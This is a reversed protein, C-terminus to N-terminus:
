SLTALANGPEEDQWIEGCSAVDTVTTVCTNCPHWSFPSSQTRLHYLYQTLTSYILCVLPKSLWPLNHSSPCMCGAPLQYKIAPVYFWTYMCLLSQKSNTGLQCQPQWLHSSYSLGRYMSHIGAFLNLCPGQGIFFFFEPKKLLIKRLSSMKCEIGYKSENFMVALQYWIMRLIWCDTPRKKWQM